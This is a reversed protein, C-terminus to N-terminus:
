NIFLKKYRGKTLPSAKLWYKVMGLQALVFTIFVNISYLVVLFTISGRTLLMMILASIGM